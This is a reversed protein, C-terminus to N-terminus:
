AKLTGLQGLDAAFVIVGVLFCQRIQFVGVDASLHEAVGLALHDLIPQRTIMELPSEVGQDGIV